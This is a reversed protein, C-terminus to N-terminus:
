LIIRMAIDFAERLTPAEALHTRGDPGIRIQFIGNRAPPDIRVEIPLTQSIRELWDIREYDETM